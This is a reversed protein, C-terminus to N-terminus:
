ISYKVRGQTLKKENRRRLELLRPFMMDASRFVGGTVIHILAIVEEQLAVVNPYLPRRKATHPRQFMLRTQALALTILPFVRFVHFTVSCASSKGSTGNSEM